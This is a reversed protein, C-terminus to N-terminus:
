SVAHEETTCHTSQCLLTSQDKIKEMKSWKSYDPQLLLLGLFSVWADRDGAISELEDLPVGLLESALYSVYDKWCIIPREGRGGVPPVHRFSM